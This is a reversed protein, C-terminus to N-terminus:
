IKHTVVQYGRDRYFKYRQRALQKQENEQGVIETVRQFRSFFTPVEKALNLLVDSHTDPEQSYNILVPEIQSGNQQYITHPIFGRDRFTWLMDDLRQAVNESDTNILLQHGSKYIKEALQCVFKNHAVAAKNELIYFDIRTM